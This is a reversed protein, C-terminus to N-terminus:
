AVGALPRTVAVLSSAHADMASSFEDLSLEGCEYREYLHLTEADPQIGEMAHTETVSRVMRERRTKELESILPM